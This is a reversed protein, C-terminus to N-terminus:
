SLNNKYVYPPTFKRIALAEIFKLIRGQCNRCLTRFATNIDIKHGTEIIHKAISSGSKRGGVNISDNSVCQNQLWRPVHESVMSQMIQNIYYINLALDKM